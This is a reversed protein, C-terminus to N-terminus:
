YRLGQPTKEDNEVFRDIPLSQFLFPRYCEIKDIITPKRDVKEKLNRKNYKFHDKSLVIKRRGWGTDYVLLRCIYYLGLIIKVRSHDGSLLLISNYM